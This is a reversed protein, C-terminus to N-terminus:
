VYGVYVLTNLLVYLFYAFFLVKGIFIRLHRKRREEMVTDINVKMVGRYAFQLYISFISEVYSLIYSEFDDSRSEIYLSVSLVFHFKGKGPFRSLLNKQFYDFLRIVIWWWIARIRFLIWANSFGHVKCVFGDM